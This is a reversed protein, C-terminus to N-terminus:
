PTVRTSTTGSRTRPHFRGSPQSVSPNKLPTGRESVVLLAPLVWLDSLLAVILAWGTFLGFYYLPLFDALCLVFFGLAAVLSTWTMAQGIGALTRHVAEEADLGTRRLARFYVLFHISDDVAIGLAIGAIMVTAPDLPLNLLGLTGLAFLIPFLNPPISILTDRRSRLLVAMVPVITLFALGFSRFQSWVLERQLEVLLKVIGTLRPQWAPDIERALYAEIAAVLRRHEDGGMAQALVSLRLAGTKARFAQSEQPLQQNLTAEAAALAAADPPLRYVEPPAGSAQQDVKKLLDVLSLARATGPLTEVFAALREVQAWTEGDFRPPSLVIELSYAGTLAPLIQQYTQAIPADPGFFEIVNAEARLRSVGVLFVLALVTFGALVHYPKRTTLTAAMGLTRQFLKQGWLTPQPVAERRLLLRALGPFLLGNALLSFLIGLAAFLGMEQVPQMKSSLLSSFGLATTLACYWCPRVLDTMAQLIAAERERGARLLQETRAVLHVATSLGLVFVLPPLAVTVMDLTHGTAALLALMWIIGSGVTVLPLIVGYLRRFVLLLVGASGAFVWPFLRRAANQSARDLATNLVPSGALHIKGLGTPKAVAAEVAQVIPFRDRPQALDLFLWIAAYRGDEGVLFNRYFPSRKLEQAFAEPGYFSMFRAYISSLCTTTRVGPIAELDLRLDTLRTLFERDLVPPLPYIVLIFEESGFTALFHQYDQYASTTPDLWVELANDVRLQQLTPLALLVLLM